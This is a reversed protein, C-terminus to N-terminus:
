VAQKLIWQLGDVMAADAMMARPLQPALLWFTHPYNRVVDLALLRQQQRLLAAYCLGDAYLVDNTTLQVWTPPMHALVHPPAEIPMSELGDRPVLRKMDGAISTYFAPQATTHMHRVSEPVYDRGSWVDSTVPCRLMTGCFPVRQNTDLSTQVVHQSVLSALEGGSSSGVIVVRPKPGAWRLIQNCADIADSLCVSGAYDPLLRYGVSYVHYNGVLLKRCSLEESDAEGIWLGGGHYYVIVVDPRLGIDRKRSYRLIPVKAGDLSSSTAMRRVQIGQALEPFLGDPALLRKHLSRCEQAYIQQKIKAKASVHSKKEKVTTKDSASLEASKAAEHDLWSKDIPPCQMLVLEDLEALSPNIIMSPPAM